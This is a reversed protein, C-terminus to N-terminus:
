GARANRKRPPGSPLPLNAEFETSPVIEVIRDGACLSRAGEEWFGIPKGDRYVRVGLGTALEALSKGCEEPKM